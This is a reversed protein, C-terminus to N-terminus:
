KEVYPGHVLMYYDSQGKVVFPQLGAALCKRVSTLYFQKDNLFVMQKAFYKM